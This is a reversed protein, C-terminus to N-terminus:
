PQMGIKGLWQFRNTLWQIKLMLAERLSYQIEQTPLTSPKKFLPPSDDPVTITKSEAKVPLYVTLCSTALSVLVVLLAVNKRM